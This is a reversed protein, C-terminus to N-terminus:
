ISFHFEPVVESKITKQNVSYYYIFLYILGLFRGPCFCPQFVCFAGTEDGNKTLLQSLKQGYNTQFVFHLLHSTLWDTFHFLVNLILNKLLLDQQLDNLCYKGNQWKKGLYQVFVPLM